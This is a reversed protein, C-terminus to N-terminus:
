CTWRWGPLAGPCRLPHRHARPTRSPLQSHALAALLPRLIERSCEPPEADGAGPASIVCWGRQKSRFILRKRHAEAADAAGVSIADHARRLALDAAAVREVQEPSIERANPAYQTAQTTPGAPAASAAAFGRCLALHLARITSTRALM